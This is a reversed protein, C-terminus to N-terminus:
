SRIQMTDPARMDDEAVHTVEPPQPGYVAGSSTLLYKAAKAKVAFELTRRAGDVNSTFLELPACYDVAAHIVHSFEGEPFEFDKVNGQRLDIAPHRALHPTNARFAAPDRTLATLKADLKLQDNAFAFTELLWCGFFGTGGTVLIRRGRLEEWLDRRHDLVHRLDEISVPQNM